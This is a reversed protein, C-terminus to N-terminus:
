GHNRLLPNNISFHYMPALEVHRAKLSYRRPLVAIDDWRQKVKVEDTPTKAGAVEASPTADSAGPLAAPAEAPPEAAPPSADTSGAAAGAPPPPAAPPEPQQQGFASNGTGSLTLATATWVCLSIALRRMSVERLASRPLYGLYRPFVIDHPKRSL